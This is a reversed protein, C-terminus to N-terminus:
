IPTNITDDKIIKIGLYSDFERNLASDTITIGRYNGNLTRQELPVKKKNVIKRFM